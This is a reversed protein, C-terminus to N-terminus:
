EIIEFEHRAKEYGEDHGNDYAQDICKPCAGVRVGGFEGRSISCLGEGCDDCWVEIEVRVEPM